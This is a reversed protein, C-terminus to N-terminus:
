SEAAGAEGPPGLQHCSPRRPLYVAARESWVPSAQQVHSVSVIALNLCAYTIMPLNYCQLGSCTPPAQPGLSLVCM